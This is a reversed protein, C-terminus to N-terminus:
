MVLAARVRSVIEGFNGTMGSPDLWCNVAVALKLSPLISSNVMKELQVDLLAPTATTFPNPRAVLEPTPCVFIM